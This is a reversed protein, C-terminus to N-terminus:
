TKWTEPSVLQASEDVGEAMRLVEAALLSFLVATETEDSPVV